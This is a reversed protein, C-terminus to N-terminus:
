GKREEAKSRCKCGFEGLWQLLDKARKGGLKMKIVDDMLRKMRPYGNEASM